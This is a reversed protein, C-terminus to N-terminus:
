SGRFRVPGRPGGGPGVLGPLCPVAAPAHARWAAACPPRRRDGPLWKGRYVVRRPQAATVYAHHGIVVGAPRQDHGRRARRPSDRWRRAGRGGGPGVGRHRGKPHRHIGALLNTDISRRSRRKAPEPGSPRRVSKGQLLEPTGSSPAPDSSHTRVRAMPAAAPPEARIPGWSPTALGAPEGPRRRRGPPRSPRGPPWWRRAPRAPAVGHAPLTLPYLPAARAAPMRHTQFWRGPYVMARTLSQRVVGARELGSRGSSGGAAM